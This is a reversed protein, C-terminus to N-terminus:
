LPYDFTLGEIELWAADPCGLTGYGLRGEPTFAAYQNDIWIVLGLRGRPVRDTRFVVKGDVSFSTGEEAADISYAHWATEDLNLAKADERIWRRALRRILRAAPRLALLPLALVVPSLLIAPTLSSSFVAALFGSGPLHDRLTLHNEASAHFFWAANPLAPLKRVGGAVGLSASFPDNWLGFGWTGPLDGVSVRAKLSLRFPAQWLFDRRALGGTDFVQALRYSGAPGAPISLRTVGGALDSTSAGRTTLRRLSALISRHDKKVPEQTDM